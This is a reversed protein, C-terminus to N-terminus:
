VPIIEVVVYTEITSTWMPQPARNQGSRGGAASREMSPTAVADGAILEWIGHEDGRSGGGWSKWVSAGCRGGHVADGGGGAGGGVGSRRGGHAIALGSAVEEEGEGRGRRYTGGRRPVSATGRWRKPKRRRRPHSPAHTCPQQQQEDRRRRGRSSASEDGEAQACRRLGQDQHAWDGV